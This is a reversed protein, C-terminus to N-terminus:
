CQESVLQILALKQAMRMARIGVTMALYKERDFGHPVEVMVWGLDAKWGDSDKLQGMSMGWTRQISLWKPAWAADIFRAEFSGPTRLAGGVQGGFAMVDEGRAVGKWALGRGSDQWAVVTAAWPWALIKGLVLVLCVRAGLCRSLGSLVGHAAVTAYRMSTAGM